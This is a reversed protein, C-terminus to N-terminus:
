ASLREALSEADDRWDCKRPALTIAKAIAVRAAECQGLEHQVHALLWLDEGKPKAADTLQTLLQLAEGVTGARWLLRSRLRKASVGEVKELETAVVAAATPEAEIEALYGGVSKVLSREEQLWYAVGDLLIAPMPAEAGPRLAWVLRAPREGLTATTADLALTLPEGSSLVGESGDIALWGAPAEPEPQSVDVGQSVWFGTWRAPDQRQALRELAEAAAEAMGPSRAAETLMETLGVLGAEGAIRVLELLTDPPHKGGAWVAAIERELDTALGVRQHAAVVALRRLATAAGARVDYRLDRLLRGLRRIVDRSPVAALAMLLSPNKSPDIAVVERVLEKQQNASMRRAHRVAIDAAAAAACLRTSPSKHTKAATLLVPLDEPTGSRSLDRAAAARVTADADNLASRPDETESM